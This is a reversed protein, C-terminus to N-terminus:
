TMRSLVRSTSGNPAVASGRFEAIKMTDAHWWGAKCRVIGRARMGPKFNAANSLTDNSAIMTNCVLVDVSLNVTM